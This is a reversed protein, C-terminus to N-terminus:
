SSNNSPTRCEQYIFVAKNDNNNASALILFISISNNDFITKKTLYNKFM